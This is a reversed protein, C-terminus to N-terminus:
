AAFVSMPADILTPRTAKLAQRVVSSLEAGESIKEFDLAFADALAALNPTPLDVGLTAMGRQRMEDRIQGYGGNGSVVIPLPLGLESASSLEQMTFTFGGDGVLVVVDKDPAAIKAGIAAPLGYGLTAFGTPYLFRDTQGMPLLHVTGFYSVQASDGCVVLGEPAVDRVADQYGRWAAGDRMAERFIAEREKSWDNAPVRQELLPLLQEIVVDADGLIGIDPVVNKDLQGADIDIRILTGAPVETGGWLDSDSWETGIMIVADADRVLSRAAPLRLSAGLSRADREDVIGKGNVTTVVAADIRNALTTCAGAAGRAGGGLVIISRSSRNLIEAAASWRAVDPDDAGPIPPVPLPDAHQEWPGELVDLPIEIYAPRPRSRRMLQVARMVIPAVESSTEPRFTWELIGSMMALQDRMEHLHGRDEGVAGVAPGPAIIVMPISDAYATAAAATLNALGPGSTPLCVAPRGLLRAYGDAAYGLGQEHRMSVHRIGSDPIYRYIELNHTGPIGFATDIGSAVLAEVVAKGVSPLTM